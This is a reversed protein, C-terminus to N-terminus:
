VSWRRGEFKAALVRLVIPCIDKSPTAHDTSQSALVRPPPQHRTRFARKKETPLTCFRGMVVPPLARLTEARHPSFRKPQSNESEMVTARVCLECIRSAVLDEAECSM